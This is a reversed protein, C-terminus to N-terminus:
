QTAGPLVADGLLGWTRITGDGGESILQDGQWRLAYVFGYEGGDPIWTTTHGRLTVLPKASVGDPTVRWIDIYDRIAPTIALLGAQPLYAIAELQDYPLNGVVRGSDLDFVDLTNNVSTLFLHSGPLVNMYPDSGEEELSSFTYALRPQGLMYGQERLSGIDWASITNLEGSWSSSVLYHDYVASTISSNSPIPYLLVPLSALRYGSPDFSLTKVGDDDQVLIYNSMVAMVSVTGKFLHRFIQAGSFPNSANLVVVNGSKDTVLLHRNDPLWEIDHTDIGPNLQIYFPHLANGSKVNIFVLNPSYDDAYPSGTSDTLLVLHQSDPSWRVLHYPDSNPYDFIAVGDTIRSISFTKDDSAAVYEGSPSPDGDTGRSPLFTSRQQVQWQPLNYLLLGLSRGGQSEEYTGLAYRGDTTLAEIYSIRDSGGLPVQKDVQWTAANLVDVERDFIGFVNRGDASWMIQRAPDYNDDVEHFHLTELDLTYLGQGYGTLLVTKKDPSLAMDVFEQQNSQYAIQGTERKWVTFGFGDDIYTSAMLYDGSWAFSGVSHGPVSVTYSRILSSGMNSFSWQYVDLQSNDGVNAGALERSDPSWTIAELPEDSLKLRKNTASDWVYATGGQTGSLLNGGDDSEVGIFALYRGDPSWQVDEVPASYFDFNSLQKLTALDYLYIGTSTGIAAQQNDPRIAVSYILGISGARSIERFQAVPPDSAQNVSIVTGTVLLWLFLVHKAM